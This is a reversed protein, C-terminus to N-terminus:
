PQLFDAQLNETFTIQKCPIIKLPWKKEPLRNKHTVVWFYPAISGLYPVQFSCETLIAPDIITSYQIEHRILCQNKQKVSPFLASNTSTSEIEKFSLDNTDEVINETSSVVNMGIFFFIIIFTLLKKM